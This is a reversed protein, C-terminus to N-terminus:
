RTTSFFLAHSPGLPRPTHTHTHTTNKNPRRHGGCGRRESVGSRLAEDSRWRAAAAAAGGISSGYPAPRGRDRRTWCVPPSSTVVLVFLDEPSVREEEEEEKLNEEAM